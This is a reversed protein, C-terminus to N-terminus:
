DNITRLPDESELDDIEAIIDAVNDVLKNYGPQNHKAEPDLEM